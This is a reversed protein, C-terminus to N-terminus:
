EVRRSPTILAIHELIQKISPSRDRLFGRFKLLTKLYKKKERDAEKINEEKYFINELGDLLKLARMRNKEEGIEEAIKLREEEEARIFKEAESFNTKSFVKTIRLRSKFTPLLNESSSVIIFFHTELSPEELIKLLANQAETTMNIIELLIIKKGGSFAKRSEFGIVEKSENIGFTEYAGSFIDPNGRTRIGLNELEEFLIKKVEAFDGEFCHAHHKWDVFNM